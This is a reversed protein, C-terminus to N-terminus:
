NMKLSLMETLFSNIICLHLGIHLVTIEIEIQLFLFHKKVIKYVKFRPSPSFSNYNGVKINCTVITKCGVRLIINHNCNQKSMHMSSPSYKESSSYMLRRCTISARARSMSFWRKWQMDWPNCREM